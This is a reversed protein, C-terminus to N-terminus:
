NNFTITLKSCIECRTRTNRNNVKLLYIGFPDNSAVHTPVERKTLFRNGISFVKGITDKGYIEKSAKKILEYM